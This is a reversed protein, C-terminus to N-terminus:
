RERLSLSSINGEGRWSGGGTEEGHRKIDAIAQGEKERAWYKTHVSNREVEEM